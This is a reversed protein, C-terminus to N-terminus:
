SSPAVQVQIISVDTNNLFHCSGGMAGESAQCNYALNSIIGAWDNWDYSFDINTSPSLLNNQVIQCTDLTWVLYSGAPITFAGATQDATLLQNCDNPDPGGTGSNCYVTCAKGVLSYDRKGIHSEPSPPANFPLIQGHLMETHNFAVPDLEPHAGACSWSYGTKGAGSTFSTYPNGPSGDNCTYSPWPSADAAPAALAALADHASPKDHLWPPSRPKIHHRLHGHVSMVFACSLGILFLYGTFMM